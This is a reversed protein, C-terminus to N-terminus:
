RYCPKPFPATAPNCLFTPMLLGWKPLPSPIERQSVLHSSSASEVEVSPLGPWQMSARYRPSLGVSHLAAEESTARQVRM